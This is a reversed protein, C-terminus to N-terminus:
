DQQVEEVTNNVSDDAYNVNDTKEVSETTNDVRKDESSNDAIISDDFEYMSSLEYNYRLKGKTEGNISIQVKEVGQLSTLSDVISYLVVQETLSNNLNNQLTDDFNVYCIGDVVSVSVINSGSPITGQTQGSAKPGAMLEELVVKELSKNTSYHVTRTEEVLNAGAKDAFYLTLTTQLTSNIQKGPNEVFSTADMYGVLSGDQNKLPEGEITFSIYAYKNVQCLTRVIAARTLVEETPSLLSYEDSFDLKIETDGQSSIVVVNDPIVKRLDSDEPAQKLGELLKEIIEDPENIEESIYYPKPIIKNMDLNLYYIQYQNKPEKEGCGAIALLLVFSILIYIIKKM